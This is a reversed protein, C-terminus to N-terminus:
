RTQPPSWFGIEGPLDISPEGNPYRVTLHTTGDDAFEPLLISSSDPAWVHHSLAYQDFYALVGNIFTPAPQVAPQSLTKGTAVDVFLLRAPSDEAAAASPDASPSAPAAERVRLAAITKADPSWWFSVVAGEILTRVKGSAADLLRLPGLPFGVPAGPEVPGISAIADSSPSFAVAATGFVAMEHEGSGDRGTVVVQDAGTEADLVFGISKRDPSVVASRFDAPSGLAPGAVKGDIGIEGLVAAPGVGIHAVLRDRAIWDYYFPNGSRVISGPGSGDLPASGDAPAIRLSLGDAESALFSVAKGDLTWYLYFPEVAAKSFIVVPEAPRGAGADFVVLSTETGRSRVAAIRSGDPSWTPFGFNGDAETSLAVSRGGADVISLSADRSLVAISGSSAIPGESVTSPTPETTAAPTAAAPPSAIALTAAPTSSPTPGGCGAALLVITAWIVAPKRVGVMWAVIRAVRAFPDSVGQSLCGTRGEMTGHM